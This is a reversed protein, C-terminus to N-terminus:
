PAVRLGPRTIPVQVVDKGYKKLEDKFKAANGLLLFTLNDSGYYTKIIQNAREMTVADISSFLDDVDGRNLDNLEIETLINVLQDPTELRSTPYTGKLYQKASAFQEESIGKEQLRRLLVLALDIAKGTTETKTFSAITIRGPLHTQDFRSSAGYTLGSNVRLEDNLISTFRGGFITNVVWLPVRDPHRRDIGPQGILFSTQTADPKDVVGIRMGKAQAAPPQKWQYATGPPVRAFAESLTKGAIAPDLDGAVAVIMNRGVFMRKHFEAIEKQGIRAYTLEDAPRGYPHNPGYYFARYYESAVRDPYDKLARASDVYQAVVKKMEADVFAPNLVADMLLDLGAGLDKSLFEAYLNMSQMDASTDFSAGLSDLQQSFQDATRKATGRRLAEATVDAIGSLEAPEAEAGGKFVVKITVLPVDKRPMMDLVAGNGLVQRSYQPLRVQANSSAVIATTLLILPRM